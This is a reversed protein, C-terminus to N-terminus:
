LNDRGIGKLKIKFKLYRYSYILEKVSKMIGINFYLINFFYSREM